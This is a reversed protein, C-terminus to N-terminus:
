SDDASESRKTPLMVLFTAGAGPRSRVGVTGGMAQCLERVIWLGVGFGARNSSEGRHFREFILAQEAEAIGLGQDHVTLEVHEGVDGAGPVRRLEIRIPGSNGYRIANSLLNNVIQEVRVRDFDGHLAGPLDLTLESRAAALEREFSGAVERVLEALDLSEVVLDIKGSHIRSVDLIRHLAGLFRSLRRGFVTMQDDLWRASVTGDGANRAHSSIRQSHLVLPSIPNRLEHAAAIIFEDRVALERELERVRARLEALELSPDEQLNVLPTDKQAADV